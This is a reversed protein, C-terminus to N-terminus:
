WTEDFDRSYGVIRINPFDISKNNVYSLFSHYQLPRGTTPPTVSFTPTSYASGCWYHAHLLHLKALPPALTSPAIASTPLAYTGNPTHYPYFLRLKTLPLPLNSPAQHSTSTFQTFSPSNDRYNSSTSKVQKTCTM